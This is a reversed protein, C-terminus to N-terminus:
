EFPEIKGETHHATNLLLVGFLISVTVFSGTSLDEIFQRLIFTLLSGGLMVIVGGIRIRDAHTQKPQNVKLWEQYRFYKAVAYGCNVCLESYRGAPKHCQPCAIINPNQPDLALPQNINVDRGAQINGDGKVTQQSSQTESM